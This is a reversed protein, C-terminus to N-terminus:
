RLDVPDHTGATFVSWAGCFGCQVRGNREDALDLNAGCAGCSVTQVVSM